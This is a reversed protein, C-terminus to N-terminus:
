THAHTRRRRKLPRIRLGRAEGRVDKLKQILCKLELANLHNRAAAEPDRNREALTLSYRRQNGLANLLLMTERGDLEDRDSDLGFRADLPLGM